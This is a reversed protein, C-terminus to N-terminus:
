RGNGDDTNIITSGKAKQEENGPSHDMHFDPLLFDAVRERITRSFIPWSHMPVDCRISQTARDWRASHGPVVVLDFRCWVALTPVRWDAAALRRLLASGPRLQQIGDLILTTATM